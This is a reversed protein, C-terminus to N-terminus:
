ASAEAPSIATLLVTPPPQVSSTLAPSADHRSAHLTAHARTVHLAALRAQRARRMGEKKSATEVPTIARAWDAHKVLAAAGPVLGYVRQYPEAAAVRGEADRGDSTIAMRDGIAFPAHRGVLLEVATSLDHVSLTAARERFRTRTGARSAGDRDAARQMVCDFRRRLEVDSFTRVPAFAIDIHAAQRKSRLAAAEAQAAAAIIGRAASVAVTSPADAEPRGSWAIADKVVAPSGSGRMRGHVNYRRCRQQWPAGAGATEAPLVTRARRDREDLRRLSVGCANCLDAMGYSPHHRKMPTITPGCRACQLAVGKSAVKEDPGVAALLAYGGKMSSKRQRAIPKHFDNPQESFPPPDSSLPPLPQRTATTAPPAASALAPLTSTTAPQTKLPSRRHVQQGAELGLNAQVHHTSSDATAATNHSISNNQRILWVGCANCVTGPGLTPHKRKRCTTSNGCMQCQWHATTAPDLAPTPVSADPLGPLTSQSM